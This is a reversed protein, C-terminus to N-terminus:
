AGVECPGQNQIKCDATVVAGEPLASHESKELVVEANWGGDLCEQSLADGTRFRFCLRSISPDIAGCTPIDVRSEEAASDGVSEDSPMTYYVSCEPELDMTWPYADEVCGTICSPGFESVIAEGIAEFASSFDAECISFMNREDSIQFMEGVTRLRVQPVARGTGSECGPGIGFDRQFELDTTSPLYTATGDANFGGFIAVLVEQQPTIKQKEAEIQQIDSTYRSLPRLVAQEEADADSVEMGEVDFNVPRCDSGACSVGANWCVASTPSAAAPDSWFVRNGEPLFITEWDTNYSCDEEDTLHVVALIANARVFGFAGDGKTQSRRLSKLMSELPQEFGCGDIGQPGFCRFAEAMSIGEPLNTHGDVMELWPRAELEEEGAISTPQIEINAWDEPCVVACTDDFADITTAGDFIFESPRSRCSSLRLTGAEPGTNGCWPNGNDTTTIGIRYDAGVELSELQEVLVSFNAALAGQEEGMSGSDDIVFLIDVKRRSDLSVQTTSETYHGYCIPKLPHDNCGVCALLALSALAISTGRHHM